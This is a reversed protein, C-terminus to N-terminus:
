GPKTGICAMSLKRFVGRRGSVIPQVDQLGAKRLWAVADTDSVMHTRWKLHVYLGLATRRTLFAVVLGGPRVVRVMETLAREPDPLHEVLHAAMVIDFTQDHFPLSRADAQHLGAHLGATRFRAGARDLMRRSVDLADLRLPVGAVRALACSLAGTGVGCDLVRLQRGPGVLSSRALAVQMLAEYARPVNLREITRSWGAAARDYRGALEPLSLPQRQLTLRWSGISRAFVPIMDDLDPREPLAIPGRM